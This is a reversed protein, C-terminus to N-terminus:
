AVLLGHRWSNQLWFVLFSAARRGPGSRRDLNSEAVIEERGEIIPPPM